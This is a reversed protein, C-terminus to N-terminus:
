DFVSALAEPGIGEKIQRLEYYTSAVLASGLTTVVMTGIVSGVMQIITPDAANAGSNESPGLLGMGTLAEMTITLIVGFILFVLYLGFIPWRYGRTLARSRSLAGFVGTREVVCSPVAVYWMIALIIVPIFLLIASAMLAPIMVLTLLALKPLSSLGTAFCNGVSASRGSLHTVTAHIVGAQLVFSSLLYVFWGLSYFQMADFNFEGERVLGTAFQTSNWQFALLPVGVVLSLIAFTVLNSGTVSITRKVVRGMEFRPAATEAIAM